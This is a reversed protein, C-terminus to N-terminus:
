DRVVRMSARRGFLFGFSCDKEHLRPHILRLRLNRWGFFIELMLTGNTKWWQAQSSHLDSSAFKPRTTHFDNWLRWLWPEQPSWRSVMGQKPSSGMRKPSAAPSAQIFTIWPVEMTIRGTTSCSATGSTEFPLSYLGSSCAGISDNAVVKTSSGKKRIVRVFNADTPKTAARLQM